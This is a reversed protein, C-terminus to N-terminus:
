GKQKKKKKRETMIKSQRDGGVVNVVVVDVGVEVEVEVEVQVADVDDDDDDDGDRVTMMLVPRVGHVLLLGRSAEQEGAFAGQAEEAVGRLCVDLRLGQAIASIQPL